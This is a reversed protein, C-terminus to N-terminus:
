CHQPSKGCTAFYVSSGAGHSAMVTGAEARSLQVGAQIHSPGSPMALTNMVIMKENDIKITDYRAFGGGATEMTANWHVQVTVPDTKADINSDLQCAFGITSTRQYPCESGDLDKNSVWNATNGFIWRCQLTVLGKPVQVPATAAESLASFTAEEQTLETIEDFWGAWRISSEDISPLYELLEVKAGAFSENRDLSTIAGDVNAVTFTVQTPSAVAYGLGQVSKLIASYSEGGIVVAREACRLVGSERIIRAAYVIGEISAGAFATRIGSSLGRPM